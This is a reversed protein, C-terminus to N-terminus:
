GALCLVNDISASGADLGLDAGATAIVPDAEALLVLVQQGAVVVAGAEGLLCGDLVLDGGVAGGSSRQYGGALGRIGGPGVGGRGLGGGGTGRAGAGGDGAGVTTRRGSGAAGLGGGRSGRSTGSAEDSSGDAASNSDEQAKGTQQLRTYYANPFLPNSSLM